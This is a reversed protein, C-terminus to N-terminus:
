GKRFELLFPIAQRSNEGEVPCRVDLSQSIPFTFVSVYQGLKSVIVPEASGVFHSSKEWKGTRQGSSQDSHKAFAGWLKHISTMVGFTNDNQHCPRQPFKHIMILGEHLPNTSKYFLNQLARQERGDQQSCLLFGESPVLLPDEGFSTVMNTGPDQVEIELVTLFNRQKLAADPPYKIILPRFLSLGRGEM